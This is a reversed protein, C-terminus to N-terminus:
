AAPDESREPSEHGARRDVAGIVGYGDFGPWSSGALQNYTPGHSLSPLSAEPGHNTVGSLPRRCSLANEANTARLQLQDQQQRRLDSTERHSRLRM